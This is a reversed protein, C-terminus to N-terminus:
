YSSWRKEKAGAAAPRSTPAAARLTLAGLQEELAAPAVRVLWGSSFPARNLLGPDSALESNRELVTGGLPAWVRHVADDATAIEVCALGQTLLEGPGPLRIDRIEGMRGALAEAAGITAVGDGVAAWAHRGLGYLLPAGAPAAPADGRIAAQADWAGSEAAGLARRAVGALEAVDFPKPLFDFAGRRFAALANEITAYGTIMVVPTQPRDRALRDLLDFGSFGPLALDSLVVRHEAARLRAVAGAVDDARDVRWGELRLIRAAAEQVVRDDEVLLADYVTKV